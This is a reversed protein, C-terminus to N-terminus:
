LLTGPVVLVILSSHTLTGVFKLHPSPFMQCPQGVEMETLGDMKGIATMTVVVFTPLAAM